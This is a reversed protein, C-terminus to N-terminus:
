LRRITRAEVTYEITWYIEYVNPDAHVQGKAVFEDMLVNKDLGM